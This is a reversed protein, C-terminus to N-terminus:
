TVSKGNNRNDCLSSQNQNGHDNQNCIHCSRPTFLYWFVLLFWSFFWFFNVFILDPETHKTKTPKRQNKLQNRKTKQYKNVGQAVELWGSRQIERHFKYFFLNFSSTRKDISRVRLVHEQYNKSIQEMWHSKAQVSSLAHQIRFGIPFHVIM